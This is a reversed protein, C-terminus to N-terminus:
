TTIPEYVQAISKIIIGKIKGGDLKWFLDHNTWAGIVNCKVFSLHVNLLFYINM